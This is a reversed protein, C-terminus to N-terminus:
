IQYDESYMRSLSFLGDDVKPFHYKHDKYFFDYLRVRRELLFDAVFSEDESPLGVTTATKVTDRIFEDPIRLLKNYWHDFWRLSKIEKLCHAGIGLRNRNKEMETRQGTPSDDDASYIAAGHDFIFTQQTEDDYSINKNHRDANLIWSDFVIIGCALKDDCLIASIDAKTAKPLTEASGAVHLSAYYRQGEDNVACGEYPHTEHYKVLARMGVTFITGSGENCPPGKRFINYPLERPTSM